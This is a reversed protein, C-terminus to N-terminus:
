NIKNILKIITKTAENTFSATDVYKVRSFTVTGNEIKDLLDKIYKFNTCRLDSGDFHITGDFRAGTFSANILNCQHFSVTAYKM